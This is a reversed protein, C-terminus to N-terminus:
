LTGLGGAQYLFRKVGQGWMSLVLRRVFATNIKAQSQLKMDGLMSVVLDAGAALEDTEIAHTISGLRM